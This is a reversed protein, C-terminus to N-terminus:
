QVTLEQSNLSTSVDPVNQTISTFVVQSFSGSTFIAAADEDETPLTKVGYRIPLDKTQSQQRKDKGQADQSDPDKKQTVM